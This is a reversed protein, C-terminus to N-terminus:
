KKKGKGRKPARNEPLSDDMRRQMKMSESETFIEKIRAYRKGTGEKIRLTVYKAGDRSTAQNTVVGTETMTKGADPVKKGKRAQRLKEHEPGYQRRTEVKSM